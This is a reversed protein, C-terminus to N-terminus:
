PNIRRRNEEMKLWHRIGFGAFPEDAFRPIVHMHAHFVEQGGAGGVNWGVNYGDPNCKDDLYLRVKDLLDKTAAWEEASLDFPTVKHAKPIVLCSDILVPDGTAVCAALDNEFLIHDGNTKYNCCICDTM